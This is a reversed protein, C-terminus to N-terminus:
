RATLSSLSRRQRGQADFNGPALWAAWARRLAPAETDTISFWATDRSRGKVIMHNRFIGEFRFGLRLAARRSAANLANCKWEVRRYGAALAWGTLLTLAETAAPSRQVWPALLIHGIEISGQAPDIRMLAAVGAVRGGARITYFYPDDGQAAVAWGEYAAADPFPGHGMYDWVWDAGRLGDFLAAADGPVLRAVTAFRGAMPGPVPRPPPAFGAVVPGVPRDQQAMM